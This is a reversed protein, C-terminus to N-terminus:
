DRPSPSTYLLCLKLLGKHFHSPAMYPKPPLSKSKKPRESERKEQPERESPLPAVSKDQGKQSGVEDSVGKPGELQTGSRLM